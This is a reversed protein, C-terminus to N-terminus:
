RIEVSLTCRSLRRELVCADVDCSRAIKHEPGRFTPSIIDDNDQEATTNRQNQARHRSLARAVRARILDYPRAEKMPILPHLTFIQCLPSLVMHRLLKIM